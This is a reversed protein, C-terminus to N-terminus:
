FTFIVSLEQVHASSVSRQSHSTEKGSEHGRATDKQREGSTEDAERKRSSDPNDTEM